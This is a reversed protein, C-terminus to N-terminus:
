NQFSSGRCHLVLCLPLPHVWCRMVQLHTMALSTAGHANGEGSRHDMIGDWGNGCDDHKCGGCRIVIVVVAISIVKWRQVTDVVNGMRAWIVTFTGDILLEM